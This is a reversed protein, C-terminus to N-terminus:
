EAFSVIVTQPISNPEIDIISAGGLWANVGIRVEIEGLLSMSRFVFTYKRLVLNIFYNKSCIFYNIRSHHPLQRISLQSNQLIWITFKKCQAWWQQNAWKQYPQQYGWESISNILKSPTARFYMDVWSGSFSPYCELAKPWPRTLLTPHTVCRADEWHDDGRSAWDWNLPPTLM